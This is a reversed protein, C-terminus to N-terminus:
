AEAGVPLLILRTDGALIADRLNPYVREYAARSQEVEWHGSGNGPPQLPRTGVLMCGLTDAITNGIHLEIASRGPVAYIEVMGKHWDPGFRKDYYGRYDKDKQGVTRLRMPYSGAMIGPHEARATGPELTWCLTTAAGDRLRGIISQGDSNQRQLIFDAM